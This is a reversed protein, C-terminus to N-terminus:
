FTEGPFPSSSSNGTATRCKWRKWSASSPWTTAACTTSRARCIKKSPAGSAPSSSNPRWEIFPLLPAAHGQLTARYDDIRDLMMSSIPFILGPPTFRREALVHHILCRHATRQRGRPHVSVFGFATAAAQLVLDLGDDRMRDNAELLGAM